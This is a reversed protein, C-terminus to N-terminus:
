DGAGVLYVVASHDHRRAVTVDIVGLERSFRFRKASGRPAEVVTTWIEESSVAPEWWGWAELTQQLPSEGRQWVASFEPSALFAELDSQDIYLKARLDARPVDQFSADVVLASNPFVLGTLVALEHLSVERPEMLSAMWLVRWVVYSVTAISVILAIWRLCGVTRGRVNGAM